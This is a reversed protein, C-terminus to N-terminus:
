ELYDPLKTDLEKISVEKILNELRTYLPKIHNFVEIYDYKNLARSKILSLENLEGQIEEITNILADEITIVDENTFLIKDEQKKM